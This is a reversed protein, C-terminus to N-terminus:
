RMLFLLGVDLAFGFLSAAFIVGFLRLWIGPKPDEPRDEASLRALDEDLLAIERRDCRDLYRNALRQCVWFSMLVLAVLLFYLMPRILSPNDYIGILRDELFHEPVAFFGVLAWGTLSWYGLLKAKDEGRLIYGPGVLDDVYYVARGDGLDLMRGSILREALWRM